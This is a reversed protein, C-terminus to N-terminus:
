AARASDCFVARHLPDVRDRSLLQPSGHTEDDPLRIVTMV